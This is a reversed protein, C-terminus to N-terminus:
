GKGVLYCGYMFIPLLIITAIIIDVSIIYYNNAPPQSLIEITSNIFNSTSNSTSNNTYNSILIASMIKIYETFNNM